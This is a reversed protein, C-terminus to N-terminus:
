RGLRDLGVLVIVAGVFFLVLSLPSVTPGVLYGGYLVAGVAATTALTTGAHSLAARDVTATSDLQERLGLLHTVTAWGVVLSVSALVLLAPEGGRLGAVVIGALAAIAGALARQQSRRDVGSYWLPLACLALIAADVGGPLVALATVVASVLLIRRPNM